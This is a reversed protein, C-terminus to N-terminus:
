DNQKGVMKIKPGGRYRGDVLITPLNFKKEFSQLLVLFDFGKHAGTFVRNVDLNPCCKSSVFV